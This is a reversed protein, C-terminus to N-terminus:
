IISYQFFNVTSILELQLKMFDQQLKENIELLGAKEKVIKDIEVQKGHLERTKGELVKHFDEKLRQKDNEM